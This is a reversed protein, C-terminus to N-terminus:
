HEFHIKYINFLPVVWIGFDGERYSVVIPLPINETDFFYHDKQLKCNKTMIHLDKYNSCGCRMGIFHPHYKELCKNCLPNKISFILNEYMASECKNKCILCLSKKTARVWQKNKVPTGIIWSIEKDETKRVCVQECCGSFVTKIQEYKKECHKCLRYCWNERTSSKTNKEEISSKSFLCDDEDLYSHHSEESSLSESYNVDERSISYNQPNDDSLLLSKESYENDKPYLYNCDIEEDSKSSSCDINKNCACEESESFAKQRSILYSYREWLIKVEESEYFNSEEKSEYFNSEEESEYFSSEESDEDNAYKCTVCYNVKQNWKKSCSTLVRSLRSIKFNEDSVPCKCVLINTHGNKKCSKLYPFLKSKAVM